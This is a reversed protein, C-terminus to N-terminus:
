QLDRLQSFCIVEMQAAGESCKGAVTFASPRGFHLENNYKKITFLLSCGERICVILIKKFRHWAHLDFIDAFLFPTCLHTM